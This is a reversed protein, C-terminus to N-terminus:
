SRVLQQNLGNLLITAGQIDNGFYMAMLPWYDAYMGNFFAVEVIIDRESALKVFQILRAIYDPNWHDLDFKYSSHGIAFFSSGFM